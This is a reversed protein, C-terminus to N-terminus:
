REDVMFVPQSRGARSRSDYRAARGTMDQLVEVKRLLDELAASEEYGVVVALQRGVQFVGVRGMWEDAYAFGPFYGSATRPERKGVTQRFKSLASRAAAEDAFPAVYLEIEKGDLRYRAALVARMFDMGFAADPIWRETRAVRGEKPLARLFADPRPGPPVHSVVARAMTELVPRSDLPGMLRVYYQGRALEVADEAVAAEEGVDAFEGEGTHARSYIGFAGLASGMDYIEAQIKEQADQPNTWELTALAVCGYSVYEPAMGDIAKFLNERDFFAPAGQALYGQPTAVTRALAELTPAAPGQPMVGALRGCGMVVPLMAIQAVFFFRRMHRNTGFPPQVRRRPCYRAAPGRIELRM